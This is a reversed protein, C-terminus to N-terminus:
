ISESEASCFRGIVGAPAPVCCTSPPMASRFRAQVSSTTESYSMWGITCIKAVVCPRSRAPTAPSMRWIRASVALSTGLAAVTTISPCTLVM